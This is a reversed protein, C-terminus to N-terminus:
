GCAEVSQFTSISSNFTESSPGYFYIGQLKSTIYEKSRDILISICKQLIIYDFSQLPSDMNGNIRTVSTNGLKCNCIFPGRNKGNEFDAGKTRYQKSERKCAYFVNRAKRSIYKEFARYQV